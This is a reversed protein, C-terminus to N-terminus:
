HCPLKTITSNAAEATALHPKQKTIQSLEQLSHEMSIGFLLKESQREFEGLDSSKDQDIIM